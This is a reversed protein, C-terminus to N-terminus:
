KQVLEVLVGYLSQPHIWSIQHNHAGVQPSENIFRYGCAKLKLIDNALDDTEFCLHHLGGGRKEIFKQIPSDPATPSILEIHTKEMPFFAVATKQESVVEQHSCTLGLDNVLKVVAQEISPVAIAIHDLGILM